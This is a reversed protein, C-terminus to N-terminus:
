ADGCFQSHPMPEHLTERSAALSRTTVLKGIESQRCRLSAFSRLSKAIRQSKVDKRQNVVAQLTARANPLEESFRMLRYM